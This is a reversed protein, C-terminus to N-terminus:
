VSKDILSKFELEEFVSLMGERNINIELEDIGTNDFDSIKTDITALRKSLIAAKKGVLESDSEKLLYALPSRSIGLSKLLEKFEKEEEKDMNEIKDYLAEITGFEQLLPVVAKEGVGKVGPINDSKDGELAKKDVIQIPRLGYFEEIYVPTFEFVNDPIPLEKVNLGLQEYMEKNKSTVLWVRTNDSVLQLADQDKTLITTPIEEEFRKALTGIIDDAEFNQHMYQCINMSELVKQMIAFQSGLEPRMEDRHAKYEAYEDRRFTNRSIDWAVSMHSPKYNKIINLLIKCMTYVGNTYVGKSNQMIKPLVKQRDEETKAFYYDKPLNGYFCTSLMSSGDILILRKM